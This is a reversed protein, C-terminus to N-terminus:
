RTGQNVAIRHHMGRKGDRINGNSLRRAGGPRICGSVSSSNLQLQARSASQGRTQPTRMVSLLIEHIGPLSNPMEVSIAPDICFESSGRIARSSGPGCRGQPVCLCDRIESGEEKGWHCQTVWDQPLISNEKPKELRAKRRALHVVGGHRKGLKAVDRRGRKRGGNTCFTM